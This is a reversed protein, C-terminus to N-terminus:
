REEDEVKGKGGKERVKRELGHRPGFCCLLRGAFGEEHQETGDFLLHLLSGDVGDSALRTVGEAFVFEDSLLRFILRQHTVFALFLSCGM